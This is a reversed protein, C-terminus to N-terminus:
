AIICGHRFPDTRSVKINVYFQSPDVQRDVSIDNVSLHLDPSFADANPVTFESSRLFGFYALCCVAWFLIDDYESMDLFRFTSRLIAPTIPLRTDPSTGQCCKFGKLVRQLQLCVSTSDMYGQEIHLARVASLYVKLSAVLYCFPLADM